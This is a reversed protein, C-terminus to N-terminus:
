ISRVLMKRMLKNDSTAELLLRFSRTRNSANRLNLGVLVAPIGDPSFVTRTIQLSNTEPYEFEVYGAGSTFKKASPLPQGDILFRYSDLLKIPHAWVGNMHGKVHWGMQPFTGDLTGVEYARDGATVYRKISLNESTSRTPSGFYGLSLSQAPQSLTPVAAVLSLLSILFISTREM